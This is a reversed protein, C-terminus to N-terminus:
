LIFKKYILAFGNKQCKRVLQYPLSDFGVFGNLKLESIAPKLGGGNTETKSQPKLKRFSGGDLAVTPAQPPAAPAHMVKPSPMTPTIVTPPKTPRQVNNPPPLMTALLPGFKSQLRYEELANLINFFRMFKFIYSTLILHEFHYIATFITNINLISYTLAAIFM